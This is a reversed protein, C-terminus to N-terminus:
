ADAKEIQWESPQLGHFRLMGQIYELHSVSNWNTYVFWRNSLEYSSRRFPTQSIVYPFNQELLAFDAGDTVLFEAV